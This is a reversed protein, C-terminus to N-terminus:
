HCYYHYYNNRRHRCFVIGFVKVELLINMWYEHVNCAPVCRCVGVQWAVRLNKETCHVRGLTNQSHAKCMMLVEVTNHTSFASSNCRNMERMSSHKLKTSSFLSCQMTNECPAGAAAAAAATAVAFHM